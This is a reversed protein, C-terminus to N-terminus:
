QASDKVVRTLDSTGTGTMPNHGVPDFGQNAIGLVEAGDRLVFERAAVPVVALDARMTYSVITEQGDPARTYITPVRMNGPFRFATMRGNDSVETPEILRSGRAVYRWNRPGEEWAKALRAQAQAEAERQRAADDVVTAERPYTFTVAYMPREGDRRGSSVLRLQYSRSSGDPRRTVVQANTASRVATPKLFLLNGVPQALWNDADGIAVNTIEEDKAFVLQTSSTRSAVIRVVNQPDYVVAMVHPDVGASRPVVEAVVPLPLLITTPLLFLSM